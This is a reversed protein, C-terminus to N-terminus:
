QLLDDVPKDLVLGDAMFRKLSDQIAAKTKADPDTELQAPSAKLPHSVPELKAANELAREYRMQPDNFAARIEDARQMISKAEERAARRYARAEDTDSAFTMDELRGLIRLNEREQVAATYVTQHLLDDELIVIKQGQYALLSADPLGYARANIQVTGNGRVSRPYRKAYIMRLDDFPYEILSSAPATKAFLEERTLSGKGLPNAILEKHYDQTIWLLALRKYEHELLLRNPYPDATGTPCGLAVWDRTANTLRALQDHDRSKTDPGGYGPLTAEFKHFTGFVREIAGRTHSVRARSHLIEVGLNELAQHSRESRYTKGNDWYLRKPKGFVNWHQAWEGPKKGLALILMRNTELQGQDRSFVMSMICGTFVDTVTHMCLREVTDRDSMYVLADGYTMDAEWLDNAHAALVEGIWVRAFEKREKDGMFIVRMTPDNRLWHQLRGITAVSLTNSNKANPYPRYELLKKDNLEIIRRVRRASAAPNNLVLGIILNYLDDGLRSSGVIRKRALATVGSELRKLWRRINRSSTKHDRAAQELLETVKGHSVSKLSENLETLWIARTQVLQLEIPNMSLPDLITVTTTKPTHSLLEIATSPVRDPVRDSPPVRDFDSPTSKSPTSKSPTSKQIAKVSHQVPLEPVGDVQLLVGDVQGVAQRLAADKNEELLELAIGSPTSKSPTSKEDLLQQIERPNLYNVRTKNRAGAVERREVQVKGRRIWSELRKLSIGFQECITTSPVLENM